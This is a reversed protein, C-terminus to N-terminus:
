LYLGTQEPQQNMMMLAMPNANQDPALLPNRSQELALLQQLQNPAPQLGLLNAQPLAAQLAQPLQAAPAGGGPLRQMPTRRLGQQVALHQLYQLFPSPQQQQPVALPAAGLANYAGAAM